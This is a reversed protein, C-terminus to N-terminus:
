GNPLGANTEKNQFEELIRLVNKKIDAAVSEGVVEQKHDKKLISPLEVEKGERRRAILNEIEKAKRANPLMGKIKQKKRVLREALQSNTEAAIQALAGLPLNVYATIGNVKLSNYNNYFKVLRGEGSEELRALWAKREQHNKGFNDKIPFQELYFLLDGFYAYLDDESAKPFVEKIKDINLYLQTSPSTQGKVGYESGLEELRGIMSLKEEEALKEKIAMLRGGNSKPIQINFPLMEKLITEETPLVSKNQIESKTDM